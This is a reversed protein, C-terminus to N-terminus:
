AAKKVPTKKVAAKKTTTKPASASVKKDLSTVKRALADIKSTLQSIDQKSPINMSNLVAEIRKTLMDETKSTTQSVRDLSSQSAEKTRAVLDDVLKRGDKETIEGKEVLRAVLAEAEEKSLVVAGVSALLLRRAAKFLPNVVPQSTEEVKDIVKQTNEKIINPIM